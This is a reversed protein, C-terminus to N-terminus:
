GAISMSMQGGGCTGDASDSILWDVSGTLKTATWQGM